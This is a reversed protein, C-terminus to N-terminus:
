NKIDINEAKSVTEVEGVKASKLIFGILLCYSRSSTNNSETVKPLHYFNLTSIRNVEREITMFINFTQKSPNATMEDTM